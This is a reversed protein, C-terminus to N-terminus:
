QQLELTAKTDAAIDAEAFAAKLWQKQSYARTYDDYHPSALDTSQGYTVLTSADLGNPTFAVVQLYSNGYLMPGYGTGAKLKPLGDVQAITFNGTRQFGGPVPIRDGNGGKGARWSVASRPADVAFGAATVSRVAAAFAQQVEPAALDM